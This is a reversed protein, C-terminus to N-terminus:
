REKALPPTPQQRVQVAFPHERAQVVRVRALLRRRVALREAGHQADGERLGLAAQLLSEAATGRDALVEPPLLVDGLRACSPRPSRGPTKAWHSPFNIHLTSVAALSARERLASVGDFARQREAISNPTGANAPEAKLRTDLGRRRLLRRREFGLEAGKQPLHVHPPLGRRAM